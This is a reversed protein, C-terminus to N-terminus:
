RDRTKNQRKNKSQVDSNNRIVFEDMCTHIKRDRKGYQWVVEAGNWACISYFSNQDRCFGVGKSENNYFMM